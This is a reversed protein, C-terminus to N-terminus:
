KTLDSSSIVTVCQFFAHAKPNRYLQDYYYIKDATVRVGDQPAHLLDASFKERYGCGNEGKKRHLCQSRGSYAGKKRPSVRFARCFPPTPPRFHYIQFKKKRWNQLNQRNRGILMM